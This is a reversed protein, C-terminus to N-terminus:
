TRKAIEQPLGARRHRSFPYEKLERRPREKFIDFTLDKLSYHEMDFTVSLGSQGAEKIINKLPVKINEISDSRSVPDLRSYFSSVKFSVDGKPIDGDFNSDLLPDTPLGLVFEKLTKTLELYREEFESAEGDSLVAEGLLDISFARGEKRIRSIEKLADGPTNGAIFQKALSTVNAKILKGAVFAPVGKHPIFRKLAKPLLPSESYFYESFLELLERESTLSPIADVFRFLQVKFAEDKMAWDMIRGKWRSVVFFGPVEGKIGDFIERGLEQTRSQITMSSVGNEFHLTIVSRGHVKM